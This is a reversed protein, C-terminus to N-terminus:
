LSTSCQYYTESSANKFYRCYLYSLVYKKQLYGHRITFDSSDSSHPMMDIICIKMKSLEEILNSTSTLTNGLLLKKKM